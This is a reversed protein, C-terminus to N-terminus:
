EVGGNLFAKYVSFQNRYKEILSALKAKDQLAKKLLAEGEVMFEHTRKRVALEANRAAENSYLPKGKDDVAAAIELVINAELFALNSKHDEIGLSAEVLGDSTLEIAETLELAKNLIEERM